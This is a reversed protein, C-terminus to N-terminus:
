KNEREKWERDKKDGPKIVIYEYIHTHTSRYRYILIRGRDRGEAEKSTAMGTEQGTQRKAM